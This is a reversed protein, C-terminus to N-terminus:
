VRHKRKGGRINNEPNKPRMQEIVACCKCVPSENNKKITTLDRMIEAMVDEHKIGNIFQEKLRRDEQQYGCKNTKIRLHGMWEKANQKQERILKHSQLSLIM